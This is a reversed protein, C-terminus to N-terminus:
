AFSLFCKISGMRIVPWGNSAIASQNKDTNRWVQIGYWPDNCIGKIVAGDVILKAGREVIIRRSAAM